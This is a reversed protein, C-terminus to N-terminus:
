VKEIMKLRSMVEGSASRARRATTTSVITAATRRRQAFTGHMYNNYAWLLLMAGLISMIWGAPHFKGDPSKFILGNIFEGVIVNANRRMM